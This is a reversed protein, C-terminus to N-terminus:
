KLLLMTRAQVFNGAKMQYVYVGSAVTQGAADRGNWSIEHRGSALVDNVLTQVTRGLVDYVTITVQQSAPVDFLIRTTPNFPNPYNAHLAFTGPVEPETEVDVASGAVTFTSVPSRASFEGAVNQSRVRWFYDGTALEPLAVSPSSLGEIRQADSFDESQAFEVEYTLASESQMPTFWSLTPASVRLSVGGIPSGNTPQVASQGAPTMFTRETSVDCDTSGADRCARVRWRYTSGAQLGPVVIQQTTIGTVVNTFSSVDNFDATGLLSYVVDYHDIPLTSSNVYWAFTATTTAILAADDPVTQIPAITGTQGVVIFTAAGSTTGASGQCSALDAANSCPTIRWHYTDGWNLNAVLTYQTAAPGSTFGVEALSGFGADDDVEVLYGAVSVSSGDLYWGLTPTQTYVIESNIPHTLVANGANIGGAVSFTAPDSLIGATGTCAVANAPASATSPYGCVRWTYTEGGVLGPIIVTTTTTTVSSSGGTFVAGTNYFVIYSLGPAATNSYWSFRPSSTYIELNDVPYSPIPQVLTGAGHTSFTQTASWDSYEDPDPAAYVSRVRWQYDTGPALNDDLALGNGALVTSTTPTCAANDPCSFGAAVTSYEVEYTLGSAGEGLYYNFIILNSYVTPGGVPWSPIPVVTAGGATNFSFTASVDVTQGNRVDINDLRDDLAIVRWEYDKGALLNDSYQIVPLPNPRSNRGDTNIILTGTAETIVSTGGWAGGTSERVQLIYKLNPAAAAVNWSFTTMSTYVTANDGPLTLIPLAARSTTFESVTSPATTDTVRWFYTTANDLAYDADYDLQFTTTGNPIVETHVVAGPFSNSTAIELTYPGTTASWEFQPELSVGTLTNAPFNLTVQAYASTGFLTLVLLTFLKRSFTKM